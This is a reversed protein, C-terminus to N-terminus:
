EKLVVDSYKSNITIRKGSNDKGRFGKHVSTDYNKTHEMILDAPYHITSKTGNLYFSVPTSPLICIVEGNQVSVDIDTFGPGIDNILLKGLNNTAFVKNRLKDIVIDSSVGNFQLEGVEKLTIPNSYDAKLQGLSWNQVVIPSYSARITTNEGEITAALL